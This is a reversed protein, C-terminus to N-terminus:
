AARGPRPDPRVGTVAGAPLPEYLHPYVGAGDPAAEMRVDLGAPDVELVLLPEPEAAFFRGLVGPLQEPLCLHLFPAPGGAPAPPIPYTGSDQAAHWDAARAVHLLPRGSM